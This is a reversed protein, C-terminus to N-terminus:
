ARTSRRRRGALLGFLGAGFLALAAPEPVTAPVDFSAKFFTDRDTNPFALSQWDTTTLAEFTGVQSFVYREFTYIDSPGYPIEFARLATQPLETISLFAVYLEAPSLILNPTFAFETLDDTDPKTRTESTYLITGAGNGVWTAVYGRLDLPGVNPIGVNTDARYDLFLSFSTLIPRAPDPAFIQGFTPLRGAGFLAIAGTRGGTTTDIDAAQASGPALLCLAAFAAILRYM